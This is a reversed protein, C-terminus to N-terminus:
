DRCNPYLILPHLWLKVPSPYSAFVPPLSLMQILLQFSPLMSTNCDNPVQSSPIIDPMREPQPQSHWPDTSQIIDLPLQRVRSSSLADVILVEELTTDLGRHHTLDVHWGWKDMAGRTAASNVLDAGLELNRANKDVGSQVVTLLEELTTGLGRQHTSDVHWIWKDMAGKTKACCHFDAGITSFGSFKQRGVGGGSQVVILVEQFTTEPGRQHSSDTQVVWKNFAGKTTSYCVNLPSFNRGINEDM